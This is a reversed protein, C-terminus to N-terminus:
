DVIDARIQLSKGGSGHHRTSHTVTGSSSSLDQSSGAIPTWEGPEVVVVTEADMKQIKGDSNRKMRQNSTFIEIRIKDQVIRPVVYLQNGVSRYEKVTGSQWPGLLVFQEMPVDQGVDLAGQEGELVRIQHDAKDSHTSFRNKSVVQVDVGSQTSNGHYVVVRGDASNERAELNVNDSFRLSVQINRLPRDIEELVKLLEDQVAPPAKVFLKNHYATIKDDPGLLQELIPVLKNAPLYTEYVEATQQAAALTAAVSLLIASLLRIM